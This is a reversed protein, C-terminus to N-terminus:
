ATKAALERIAHLVAKERSMEESHGDRHVLRVLLGPILQVQYGTQELFEQALQLDGTSVTLEGSSIWADAIRSAALEFRARIAKPPDKTVDQEM